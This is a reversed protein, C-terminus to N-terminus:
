AKESNKEFDVRKAEDRSKKDEEIEERMSNIYIAFDNSISNRIRRMSNNIAERPNEGDTSYYGFEEDNSTVIQMNNMCENIENLVQRFEEIASNCQEESVVNIEGDHKGVEYKKYRIPIMVKVIPTMIYQSRAWANGSMEMNYYNDEIIKSLSSMKMLMNTSLKQLSEWGKPTNWADRLNNYVNFLRKRYIDAMSTHNDQLNGMSKKFRDIDLHDCGM